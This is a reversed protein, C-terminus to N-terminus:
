LILHHKLVQQTNTQKIKNKMLDFSKCMIPKGGPKSVWRHNAAMMPMYSESLPPKAEREKKREKKLLEQLSVDPWQNVENKVIINIASKRLILTIHENFFTQCLFIKYM